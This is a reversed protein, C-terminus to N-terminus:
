AILGLVAASKKFKRLAVEMLQLYYRARGIIREWDEETLMYSALLLGGIESRGNEVVTTVKNLPRRRGGEGCYSWVYISYDYVNIKFVTPSSCLFPLRDPLDVRRHVIVEVKVSVVAMDPMSDFVYVEEHGFVEGSFVEEAKAIVTNVVRGDLAAGGLDLGKVDAEPERAIERMITAADHLVKVNGYLDASHGKASDLLWGWEEEGLLTLFVLDYLNACDTTVSKYMRRGFKDVIYVDVCDSYLELADLTYSYEMDLNYLFKFWDPLELPKDFVTRDIYRPGTRAVRKLPLLSRAVVDGIERDLAAVGKVVENYLRLYRLLSLVRERFGEM